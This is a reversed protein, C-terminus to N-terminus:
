DPSPFPVTVTLGGEARPHATVTADHVAAISAVITLGLGYGDHSTRDHLRRFPEFLLSVTDPQIPPGTNAVTLTPMGDVIATTIWVQGGPDNYRLANDLLNVVLRELLIPDGWVVAPRLSPQEHRDGREVGDLADEAITALDVPERTALGHENRALTLLADLLQDAHGVSAHIARGMGILEAQTPERQAMVVDVATRMVTLPTRLEHGANAIFQRQSKFSTELRGLMEDFTDGLERLEDRPGTLAVRASLNHQSAARAAATVRHVRRLARGAVLWGTLAAVLTVAVLTIVSYQLLHALTVERQGNAGAIVGARFAAECKYQVGPAVDIHPFTQLCRNLFEAPTDPAGSGAASAATETGVPTTDNIEPLSTWVLAYTIAVVIAGCVAFLGTYLLTLRVRITLRPRTM